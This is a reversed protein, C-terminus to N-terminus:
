GWLRLVRLALRRGLRGAWRQAATWANGAATRVRAHWPVVEPFRVTAGAAPYTDIMAYVRAAGRVAGPAFTLTASAISGEPTATYTTDSMYGLPLPRRSAPDILLLGINHDAPRLRAASFTATVHDYSAVFRVDGVGEPATHVGSEHPRLEAGGFVSMTDTTPNCYGLGQMFEGYFDIKGCTTKSNVAAGGPAEGRENLHSAVRFLEFPLPFGNFEITFGAENTLTLLGGDVRVELPFRARSHPDVATRNDPGALRGGIAWAVARTGDGEVLGIMYHISDFGIQNYSPLIAPLPAAVRYLDWVGAADGPARPVPLPLVGGGYPRVAFRFTQDFHGGVEGGTFRLGSRELNILYDGRIRMTVPGGAAGTYPAAPVVTIFRRDGSVDVQAGTEPALTVHVSASDILALLTRGGRRVLLSFAVPQNGEIDAPPQMLTNGLATTYLLFVGDRPVSDDGGVTCRPDNLGPRLCYEYPVSFVGGNEGAIVIADAGLAPSANLDNRPEDILRMSWRPTGNPNLVYLHGDGSGFYINGAGDIAPSSRIPELTDFTWRLSGDRPDLAYVSGDAGAQIITGDAMEAASAYLHDRTAFRWRERGTAPDYARVYGDFAGAVVAADGAASTLLPSAVVSGDVNAHWVTQGTAGDVAFTNRMFAFNNGVFLRGTHPDLAPLSWTQDLTKWCWVREGTARRVGYTCFNDNPVYLTGDAGIAVNGEFWNIFASNVKPDEAAFKWLVEGTARNLAYLHGDGSGFVVRGQDDLLAASDIIEGTLFKWKLNGNRDIAYFTRDASGVYVTADGDIVPSSFVGKGTRFVWPTGGSDRPMVPSRGNQTANRRFKPWPSHPDLPVPYDFTAESTPAPAAAARAIGSSMVAISAVLLVITLTFPLRKLSVKEPTVRM